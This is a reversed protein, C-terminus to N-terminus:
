AAIKLYGTNLIAHLNILILKRDFKPFIYHKYYDKVSEPKLLYTLSINKIQLCSGLSKTIKAFDKPLHRAESENQIMLM